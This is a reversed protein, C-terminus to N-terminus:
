GEHRRGASDAASKDAGRPPAAAARASINEAVAKGIKALFGDLGERRAASIAEGPGFLREAEEMQSRSAADTKNFFAVIEKGFAGKIEEYLHRQSALSFGNAESADVIFAIVDALERLATIALLEVKNRDALPRDLLGPTDVLQIDLYGAKTHGIIVEKTTFPYPRVEPRARSLAGVLTSKGVGPYGALVVTPISPDATPLDKMKERLSAIVSLDKDAKRIISSARGFFARRARAADAPKKAYRVSAQSRKAIEHIVRSARSLRGLASKAADTGVLIELLDKYFPHMNEITPVSKVVSELYACATKEAIKIRKEERRRAKIIPPVKAPLEIEASVAERFSKNILEEATLVTPMAEFPQRM